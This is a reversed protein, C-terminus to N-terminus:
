FLGGYQIVRVPQTTNIKFANSLTVNFRMWDKGLSAM